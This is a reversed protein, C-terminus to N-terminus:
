PTARCEHPGGLPAGTETSRRRPRIRIRDSVRRSTRATPPRGWAVIAIVVGALVYGAANSWGRMTASAADNVFLFTNVAGHFVTAIVISSGTRLALFTLLLSLGITYFVYPIWPTGYQPMGDIFFLPLHWFAWLLGSLASSKWPGFRHVLHPLAYGRWGVEEGLVMVFVILSLPTIPQLRIPGRAGSLYSLACSLASIALPLACAVTYWALSVRWTTLRQWVARIETPGTVTAVGLAAVAPGFLALLSIPISTRAAPLLAWTLVCALSFFSPLPHRRVLRTILMM